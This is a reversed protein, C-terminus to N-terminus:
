LNFEKLKVDLIRAIENAVGLTINDYLDVKKDKQSVANLWIFLRQLVLPLFVNRPKEIILSETQKCYKLKLENLVGACYVMAAHSAEITNIKRYNLNNKGKIAMYWSQANPPLDSDCNRYVGPKIVKIKQWEGNKFDFTEKGETDFSDIQEGINSWKLTPLQRLYQMPKLICVNFSESIENQIVEINKLSWCTILGSNEVDINGSKKWKAMIENTRGGILLVGRDELALLTPPIMAYKSPNGEESVEIHGFELIPNFFKRRLKSDSFIQDQEATSLEINRCAYNIVMESIEKKPYVSLWRLLSESSM